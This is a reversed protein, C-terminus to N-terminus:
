ILFGGGGTGAYLIEEPALMSFTGGTGVYFIGGPAVYFVVGKTMMKMEDGSGFGGRRQRM